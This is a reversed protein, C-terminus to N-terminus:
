RVKLKNGSKDFDKKIDKLIEEQNQNPYYLYVKQTRMSYVSKLGKEIHKKNLARAVSNHSFHFAAMGDIIEITLTEAQGKPIIGTGNGTMQM